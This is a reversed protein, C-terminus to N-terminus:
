KLGFLEGKQLLLLIQCVQQEYPIFAINIEKLTKIYKAVPSRSLEDFRADPCATLISIWNCIFTLAYIFYFSYEVYQFINKKRIHCLQM